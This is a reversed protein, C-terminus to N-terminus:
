LTASGKLEKPLKKKQDLVRSKSFLIRFSTMRADGQSTRFRLEMLDFPLHKEM